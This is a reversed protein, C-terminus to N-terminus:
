PQVHSTAPRGIVGDALARYLRDPLFIQLFVIVALKPSYCGAVLARMYYSLARLPDAPAVGKAVAWGRGGLWAKHPIRPRLGDLWQALRARSRGASARSPDFRDQWVAGPAEAMRFACGELALRIAFDTDEAERLDTDYLVTLATARPVVTTITPVFGRDCLLYTAMDEGKALGRPPKLFRRGSGRDVVIRAYGVMDRTGALLARMAELHHPLFVDDSDLFAIYDGRAERIGANRAAGGGANAQRICRLRSDGFAAVVAAPDDASGDDVVVIEFDPDSQALVSALAAGLAAARNYVPVVVSFFPTM